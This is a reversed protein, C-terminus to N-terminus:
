EPEMLRVKPLGRNLASKQKPGDFRQSIIHLSWVGIGAVLATLLLVLIFGLGLKKAMGFNAFHGQVGSIM